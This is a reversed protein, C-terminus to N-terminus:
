RRFHLTADNRFFKAGFHDTLELKRLVSTALRSLGCHIPLECRLFLSIAVTEIRCANDFGGSGGDMNMEVLYHFLCTTRRPGCAM